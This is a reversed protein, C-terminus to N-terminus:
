PAPTTTPTPEVQQQAAAAPQTAPADATLVIVVDVFDSTPQSTAQVQLGFADNPQQAAPQQAAAENAALAQYGGEKATAAREEVPQTAATGLTVSVQKLDDALANADRYKRTIQESLQQETLGAVQMNGIQPLDITGNSVEYAKGVQAAQGIIPQPLDINLTDGTQILRQPSTQAPASVVAGGRGANAERKYLQQQERGAGGGGGFGGAGGFSTAGAGTAGRPAARSALTDDSERTAAGPVGAPDTTRGLQAPELNRHLDFGTQAVTTTNFKRSLEEAQERPVQRAIICQGSFEPRGAWAYFSTQAQQPQEAPQPERLQEVQQQPQTSSPQPVQAVAPNTTPPTAALMGEARREQVQKADENTAADIVPGGGKAQVNQQRFRSGSVVQSQSINLAQPMPETGRQWSIGNRTLYDTVTSEAETLNPACYVVLLPQNDASAKQQLGLEAVVTERFMRDGPTATNMATNPSDTLSGTVLADKARTQQDTDTLKKGAKGAITEAEPAARAPATELKDVTDLRKSAITEDPKPVVPLEVNGAIEPPKNNPWPVLLYITMGLGATLVIMAAVLRIRPWFNMRLTTAQERDDIDGLLVARELQANITEAIDAPAMERPLNTLLKRQKMLEAILQRHQPNSALHQEIEARGAEDIEGDVYAALKAEIDETSAMNM